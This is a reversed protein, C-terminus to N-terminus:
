KKQKNKEPGGSLAHRLGGSDRYALALSSHFNIMLVSRLLDLCPCHKDRALTHGLKIQSVQWFILDMQLTYKKGRKGHQMTCKVRIYLGHTDM